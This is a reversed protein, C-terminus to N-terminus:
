QCGSEIKSRFMPTKGATDVIGVMAKSLIESPGSFLAGYKAGNQQEVPRHHRRLCHM